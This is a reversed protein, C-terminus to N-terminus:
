ANKILLQEIREAAGRCLTADHMLRDCVSKAGIWEKPSLPSALLLSLSETYISHAERAQGYVERLRPLLAEPRKFGHLDGVINALTLVCRELAESLTSLSPPLRAPCFLALEAETEGLADAIGNLCVSLALIDEPEIPTIFETILRDAVANHLEAARRLATPTPEHPSAASEASTPAIRARLWKAAEACCRAQEELLSFYLNKEKAM